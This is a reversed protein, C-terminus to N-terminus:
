LLLRRLMHRSPLQHGLMLPILPLGAKSSKKLIEDKRDPASAPTQIKSSDMVADLVSAMRRRKPTIAPIKSVKPLRPEQPPSLTKPQEISRRPEPKKATKEKTEAPRKPV